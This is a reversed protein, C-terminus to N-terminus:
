FACRYNGFEYIKQWGGSKRGYITYSDGEFGNTITVVEAAGDKDLDLQDVLRETYLGGQGIADIEGGSMIDKQTYHAYQTLAATYSNGQPEALLFLVYREQGGTRKKVVYSGILEAKGDGNLDMATLNVTDLSPLLSAAVGKQKFANQALPLVASRESATPARRSAKASGLSDLNTALAMVNTNLRASSQMSVEAETRMCEQDKTSRKVTLTGAEAGGFLVRYKQGKQYYDTAFRSIEEADSDGAVPNKYSGQDIMLIPKISADPLKNSAVVFVVGRGERGQQAKAPPPSGALLCVLSLILAVYLFVYHPRLLVAKREKENGKPDKHYINMM